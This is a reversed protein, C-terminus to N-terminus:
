RLGRISVRPGLMRSNFLPECIVTVSIVAPSATALSHSPWTTIPDSVNIGAHAARTPEDLSDACLNALETGKIAGSGRVPNHDPTYGGPLRNVVRWRRESRIHTQMSCASPAIAARLRLDLHGKPATSDDAHLARSSSPHPQRRQLQGPPDPLRDMSPM